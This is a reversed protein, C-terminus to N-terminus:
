WISSATGQPHNLSISSRKSLSYRILYGFIKQTTFSKTKKKPPFENNIKEIITFKAHEKFKHEPNQFHKDWSRSAARWVGNRNINIRLSMSYESKGIYWSNTFLCCKILYIIWSSKHTIFHRIDFIKQAIASQFSLSSM